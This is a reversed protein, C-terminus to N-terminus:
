DDMSDMVLPGSGGAYWAASSFEWDEVKEVLGKRVPNEHIYKLLRVPGFVHQGM